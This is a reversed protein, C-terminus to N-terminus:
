DIAYSLTVTASLERQGPALPPAASFSQRSATVVIEDGMTGPASGETVALLDGLNVGAASAMSQAKERAKRIAETRAKNMAAETDEVSFNVGGINNLGADLLRDILPGVGDLDRTTVTVQNTVAYRQNIRTRGQPDFDYRQSLNLYQTAVDRRDIGSAEIAAYVRRMLASNAEMAARATTAESEVGASIRAVDPEVDASATATAHLIGVKGGENHALAPAALAMCFLSTAIRKM